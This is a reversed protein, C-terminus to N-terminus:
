LRAGGYTDFNSVENYLMEEFIDLTKGSNTNKKYKVARFCANGDGAKSVAGTKKSLSKCDGRLYAIM